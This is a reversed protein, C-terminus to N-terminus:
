AALPSGTYARSRLVRDSLGTEWLFKDPNTSVPVRGLFGRWEALDAQWAEVFECCLEASIQKSRRLAAFLPPRLLDPRGHRKAHGTAHARVVRILQRRHALRRRWYATSTIDPDDGSDLYWFLGEALTDGLEETAARHPDAFPDFRRQQMIGVRTAQLPAGDGLLFFWDENYINPFFSATRQPNIMMAGGGIFTDQRGGVARYAHCVVSNDKFGENSLGVTRHHDLLGVALPLLSRRVVIDDDLFLVRQWGSSRALATGINRKLSLDSGSAFGHRDLLQNTGTPALPLLSEDVDLALVAAGLSDALQRTQAATAKLSCLAIIPCGLTRALHMAHRLTPTPRATPM